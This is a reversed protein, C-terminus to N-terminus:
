AASVMLTILVVLLDNRRFPGGLAAVAALYSAGMLARDIFGTVFSWQGQGATLQSPLQDLYIKM